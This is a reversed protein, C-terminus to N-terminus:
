MCFYSFYSSFYKKIVPCRWIWTYKLEIEIYYEVFAIGRLSIQMSKTTKYQKLLNKESIALNPMSIATSYKRPIGALLM